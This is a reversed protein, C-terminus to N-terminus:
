STIPNPSFTLPYLNFTKGKGKGREGKGLVRIPCLNNIIRRQEEAEKGYRM